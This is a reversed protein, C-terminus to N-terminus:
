PLQILPEEDLESLGGQRPLLQSDYSVLQLVNRLSQSIRSAYGLDNMLSSAQLSSLHHERVEAFLRNRFAADFSAAQADVWELRSRWLEEPLELHNVERVQRLMWLLNRRLELYHERVPSAPDALAIGLNKQLHKADKVADVLQIAAVQASMWFRQHSEDLHVELRSMFDLLDAYVGKIHRRYLLNAAMSAEPIGARLVAEDMQPRSLQSVPQYLVHCIVELSLRGLHQLELVVAQAAADASALASPDLYRARTVPTVDVALSAAAPPVAPVVSILVEPEPREPLLRQLLQALGSQLPWFLLVGMGNFLSHFLALQILRNEGLGLPATLWQLLWGLPTLLIFALLATCVNFIVHALALRQGNRNGGLAGVFATSVSSGVNAGIALALAQGLVIQGTALAALILMLTAHSSQLVVTLLLGVLVMLLQGAIGGLQYQTLDFGDSFSAFGGKLQDIGLFIFAIGLVIRGAARSKPGQFSALLGFVLLPLAFPALSLGQGALALLWIGSTAGLNAGLLISIGAALQILGTSIFAITLLSVLTSSQLLMTGGVGFLMSRFRTATSRALWQELKGGALQRLNEELCQMGFLFLALGACLELWGPSLWFSVALLAFLLTWSAVRLRRASRGPAAM